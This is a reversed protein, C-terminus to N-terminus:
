EGLLITKLSFANVSIFIVGLLTWYTIGSSFYTIDLVIFAILLFFKFPYIRSIQKEIQLANFLMISSGWAIVSAIIIYILIGTSYASPYNRIEFQALVLTPSFLALSFQSYAFCIMTNVIKGIRRVISFYIGFLLAGTIGCFIGIALINPIQYNHNLLFSPRFIFIIGISGCIYGFINKWSFPSQLCTWDFFNVISLTFCDLAFAETLSLCFLSSYQAFLAFLSIFASALVISTKSHEVDFIYIGKYKMYILSLIASIFGRAYLLEYPTVSSRIMIDKNMFHMVGNLACYIISYFFGNVELPRTEGLDADFSREFKMAGVIPHMEQSSGPLIGFQDGMKQYERLKDNENEEIDIMKNLNKEQGIM